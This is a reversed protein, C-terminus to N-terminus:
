LNTWPIVAVALVVVALVQSALGCVMLGSHGPPNEGAGSDVMDADAGGSTAYKKQDVRARALATLFMGEGALLASIIIVATPIHVGSFLNLLILVLGIAVVGMLGHTTSEQIMSKTPRM